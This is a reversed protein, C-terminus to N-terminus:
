QMWNPLDIDVSAIPTRQNPLDTPLIILRENPAVLGFKERAEKRVFDDTQYYQKEYELEGNKKELKAVESKIRKVEENVSHWLRAQKGIHSVTIIIILILLLTEKTM